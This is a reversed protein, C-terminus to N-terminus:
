PWVAPTSTVSWGCVGTAPSRSPSRPWSRPPAPFKALSSLTTTAQEATLGAAAANWLSLPTIRYTHIHEPATVLEAFRSLAARADHAKPSATELLVTMDAQVILPNAPDTM